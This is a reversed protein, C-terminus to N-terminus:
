WGSLSPVTWHIPIVTRAFVPSASLAYSDQAALMRDVTAAAAWFSNPPQDLVLPGSPVNSGWSQCICFGDIDTRYATILMCHSWSGRAQCFGNGDRQLTFGQNSSVSVPHGAALAVKCDNASTVLAAAGLKFPAAHAKLDASLGSRGWQRARQGSYTGDSGLMKRSLLGMTTMAKVMSAGDCGDGGGLMHGAERGLAYLSETDTEQYEVDQDTTTIAIAQLLDNGHGHGHSECDGITQAPYDPFSGLLDKWAKYLLVQAPLQGYFLYPAAQRLPPGLSAAILPTVAPRYVWGCLGEIHQDTM